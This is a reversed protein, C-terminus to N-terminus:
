CWLLTAYVLYGVAYSKVLKVTSAKNNTGHLPPSRDM